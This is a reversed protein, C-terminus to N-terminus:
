LLEEFIEDIVDDFKLHMMRDPQNDLMVNEDESNTISIISTGEPFPEKALAMLAERSMIEINM